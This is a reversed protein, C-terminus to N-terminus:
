PQVKPNSSKRRKSSVTERHPPDLDIVRYAHLLLIVLAAASSCLCFFQFAKM